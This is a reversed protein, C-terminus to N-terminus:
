QNDINCSTGTGCINEDNMSRRLLCGIRSRLEGSKGSLANRPSQTAFKPLSFIKV